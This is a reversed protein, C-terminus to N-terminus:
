YEDHEYDHGGKRILTTLTRVIGSMKSIDKDTQMRERQITENSIRNQAAIRESSANKESAIARQTSRQAAGQYATTIRDLAPNVIAIAEQRRNHASTETEKAVNARNTEQLQQGQLMENALHSRQAEAVNAYGVAVNGWGIAENARNSRARETETAVNARHTEIERALNSRNTESERAINARKTEQYNKEGLAENALHSRNMEAENALNARKQEVHQQYKIQNETM